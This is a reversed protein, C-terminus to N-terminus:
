IEELNGSHQCSCSAEADDAEAEAKAAAQEQQEPKVKPEPIASSIAAGSPGGPDTHADPKSKAEATVGPKADEKVETKFETKVAPQEQQEPKV